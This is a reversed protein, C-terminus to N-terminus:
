KFQVPWPLEESLWIPKLFNIFDLIQSFHTQFDFLNRTYIQM